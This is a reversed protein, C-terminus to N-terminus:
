GGLKLPLRPVEISEGTFRPFKMARIVSTICGAVFTGRHEESLTNVTNVRGTKEIIFSILMTGAVSPDRQQQQEVCNKMQEIKGRIVGKIQDNDLTKPLNRSDETGESPTKPVPSKKAPAKAVMPQTSKKSLDKSSTAAKGEKVEPVVVSSKEVTTEAQKTNPEKKAAADDRSVKSDEQPTSNMAENTSPRNNDGVNMSQKNEEKGTATASGGGIPLKLNPMTPAVANAGGARDKLREVAEKGGTDPQSRTILNYAIASTVLILAAAIVSGLIIKRTSRGSGGLYKPKVIVQNFSSQPTQFITEHKEPVPESATEGREWPPVEDSVLTSLVSQSKKSPERNVPPVGTVSALEKEVLASLSFEGSGSPPPNEPAAAVAASEPSAQQTSPVNLGLLQQLHPLEQLPQWYEMGQCWVLSNADILRGNVKEKLEAISLPGVQQNDIAAYWDEGAEPKEAPPASGSGINDFVQDVKEHEGEPVVLGHQARLRNLENIDVIETQREETDNAPQFDLGEKMLQDFAEGVEDGNPVATDDLGQSARATALPNTAVVEAHGSSSRLMIMNGCRKCRVKVNKQGVKDDSIMYQTQCNDCVFKM